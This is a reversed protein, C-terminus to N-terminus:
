SGHKKRLNLLRRTRTGPSSVHGESICFPPNRFLIGIKPCAKEEHDKGARHDALRKLEFYSSGAIRPGPEHNESGRTEQTEEGQVLEDFRELRELM